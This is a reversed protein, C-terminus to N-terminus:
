LQLIQRRRIDSSSWPPWCQGLYMRSYRILLSICSWHLSSPKSMSIHKTTPTDSYQRKSTNRQHGRTQSEANISRSSSAEIEMDVYQKKRAYMKRSYEKIIKAARDNRIFIIGSLRSILHDPLHMTSISSATRPSTPSVSSIKNLSPQLTNKKSISLMRLVSRLHCWRESTVLSLM